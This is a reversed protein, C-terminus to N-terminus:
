WQAMTFLMDVTSVYGPNPLILFDGSIKGLNVTKWMDSDTVLVRVYIIFFM